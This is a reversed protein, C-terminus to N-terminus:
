NIFDIGRFSVSDVSLYEIPATTIDSSVMAGSPYSVYYAASYSKGQPPRGDLTSIILKGDAQIYGRGLGDAVQTPDDVMHLSINNEYIARFLDESGGTETTPYTLVNEITRYSTIGGGATRQYIEFSLNGLNDIPIFSGNRKQMMTFPTKVSKVGSVNLIAKVIEAQTLSEGMKKGTIINFIATQIRSKLRSEDNSQTNITGQTVNLDREIQFSFDVFNEVAEKVITDACAHKMSNIKNQVTDMLQNYSYTIFLNTSADYDVLIRDGSRIMGNQKLNIYTYNIQSGLTVTYDVDIKYVISSDVSSKVVISNIDVGKYSLRAPTSLRISHAENTISITQDIDNQSDFLFEVGDRSITSRGELLPDQRKVIKYEDSSILAGDKDAVQSIVDVPQNELVLVNSSRYRYDVEIVDLTAMGININTQSSDSLILTDSLMQINTLDYSANRTINRVKNVLVIPTDPTVRPNNTKIRFERADTAYFREGIENGLVDSPYEFKFALQDISQATSSGRIYIDVKGGIHRNEVKDWDRVMLPDGSEQVNVEVVGPVGYSTALYGPKTGSDFSSRALKIRAGLQQNTEEDAGYLTPLENTVSLSPDLGTAVTITQAPVNGQSGGLIARIEAQVEYRETTPNYFSDSNNADIITQGVVEFNVPDVDLDPDGPYYVTVGDPILIDVTPETSTYFTVSGVAYSVGRRDLNFNAAHKDFQQDILEQTVQPDTIGLADSLLRKNYSTIPNDSVGDGDADDFLLLSDISESRFVFDQVTYNKAFEDSTADLIDRIVQATVVNVKNNNAGLRRSMSYLIDTRQRKPLGQFDTSYRIFAGQLEISYYSEVLQNLNKDYAVTTTVFYFRTDEDITEGDTLFVNDIKGELVLNKITTKTITYTYYNSIQDLYTKTEIKLSDAESVVSTQEIEQEVRETTDFDNVYSDNILQYGSNGGGGSLAIYYNCGLFDSNDNLSFGNSPILIKIWDRSQEINIGTPITVSPNIDNISIVKAILTIATSEDTQRGIESVRNVFELAKFNLTLQDGENLSIYGNTNFSWAIDQLNTDTDGVIIGALSYSTWATETSGSKIKYRYAVTLIRNSQLNTPVPITGSIQQILDSTYYLENQSPTWDTIPSVITPPQLM